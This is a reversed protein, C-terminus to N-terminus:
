EAEREGKLDDAVDRSAQAGEIRQFTEGPDEGPEIELGLAELSANLERRTRGGAADLPRDLEGALYTEIAAVADDKSRIPGESVEAALSRLTLGRADAPQTWPLDRWDAPIVVENAPPQEGPQLPAPAAADLRIVQVDASRYASEIEPYDGDLYVTRAGPEVTEFFRANQFKAGKPLAADSRSYFLKM